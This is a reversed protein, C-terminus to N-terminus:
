ASKAWVQGDTIINTGTTLVSTDHNFAWVQLTQGTEVIFKLPTKIMEGDNLQSQALAGAFQGVQRIKRKAFEQAVLNGTDWNNTALFWESIEATTYDSHAIGVTIPGQDPTHEALGWTAELSLLFMKESVVDDFDQTFMSAAGLTGLGSSESVRLKRVYSRRRRGKGHKAM